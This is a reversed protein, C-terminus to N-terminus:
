GKIGLKMSYFRGLKKVEMKALRVIIAAIRTFLSTENGIELSVLNQLTFLDDM